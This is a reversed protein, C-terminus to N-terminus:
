RALEGDFAWRPGLPALVLQDVILVERADALSLWRVDSEGVVDALGASPVSVLNRKGAATLPAPWSGPSALVPYFEGEQRDFLVLSRHIYDGEQMMGGLVQWRGSPSVRERTFDLLRVTKSRPESLKRVWGSEDDFDFAFARPASAEDALAAGECWEEDGPEGLTVDAPPLCEPEGVTQWRQVRGSELEVRVRVQLSAMNANRDMLTLCALKRPVDLEFDSPDEVDLSLGASEEPAANACAFAPIAAVTHRTGDELSIRILSAGEAVNSTSLALVADDGMRRPHLAPGRSITRHVGGDARWLALAEDNGVILAERLDIDPVAAVPAAVPQMAEASAPEPSVAPANDHAERVHMPRACGAIVACAVWRGVLIVVKGRGIRHLM